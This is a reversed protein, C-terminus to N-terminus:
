KTMYRLYEEFKYFVRPFTFEPRYVTWTKSLNNICVEKGDTTYFTDYEPMRKEQVKVAKANLRSAIINMVWVNKTIIDAFIEGTDREVILYMFIGKQNNEEANYSYTEPIM